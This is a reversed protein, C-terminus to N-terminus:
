EQNFTIYFTGTYTGPPNAAPAGVQLTGGIHFQTRGPPQVINYYPTAPTSNGIVLSMTGGNSGYMTANPGNMISVVTGAIGEVEFIAQNFPIGM